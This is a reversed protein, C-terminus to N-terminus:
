QMNSVLKARLNFTACLLAILMVTLGSLLYNVALNLYSTCGSGVLWIGLFGLIIGAVSKNSWFGFIILIIGTILLNVNSQTQWLFACVTLWLGDLFAIWGQWM